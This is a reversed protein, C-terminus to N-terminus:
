RAITLSSVQTAGAEKLLRAAQRVTAGTTYIDDVLIISRNCVM